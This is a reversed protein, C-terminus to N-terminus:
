RETAGGRRAFRERFRGDRLVTVLGSASGFVMCVCARREAWSSVAVAASTAAVVTVAQPELEGVPELRDGPPPEFGVLEVSANEVHMRASPTGFKGSRFPLPIRIPLRPDVTDTLPTVTLAGANWAARAFHWFYKGVRVATLAEWCACCIARPSFNARHMRRWPTGLKGSGLTM